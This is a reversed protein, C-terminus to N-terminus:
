GARELLVVPITRIDRTKAEYDAFGPYAQKQREWIEDREAGTLERAVVDVTDTGVEVTTRPNALLNHYWDPDTPAGAKSAFVAFNRGVPQYMVPNVRDTGTRRGQHHVLMMPAGEFPGGVKGGHDRFEEIIKGNWDDDRAM